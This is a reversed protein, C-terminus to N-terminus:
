RELHVEGADLAVQGDATDVILAGSDDMGAAIGEKGGNEWRVPRGFLADRTRWAALVGRAAPPLWDDLAAVLAALLAEVDPASARWRLSTATERLEARSDRPRAREPRDRDRGLRGAAAGELLIGAVKRGDIWVDNPWKIQRRRAASSAGRM